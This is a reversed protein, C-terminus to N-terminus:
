QLPIKHSFLVIESDICFKYKARGADVRLNLPYHGHFHLSYPLIRIEFDNTQILYSILWQQRAFHKFIGGFNNWVQNYLEYLRQYTKYNAVVVGTNFTKLIRIGPYMKEIEENDIVQRLRSAEEVLFDHDSKNYNVGICDDTYSNFELLEEDTFPRQINIDSDTFIIVSSDEVFDLAPLFGGHQLCSNHNASKVDSSPMRIFRIMDHKERYSEPVDFDLTIIVNKVNSNQQMTEIYKDAHPLYVENIGSVLYIPKM